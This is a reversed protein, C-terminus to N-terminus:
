SCPCGKYWPTYGMVGGREFSPARLSLSTSASALAFFVVDSGGVTLVCACHNMSTLASDLLGWAGEDLSCMTPSAVEEQSPVEHHTAEIAFFYTDDGTNAAAFRCSASVACPPM